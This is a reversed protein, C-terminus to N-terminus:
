IRHRTCLRCKAITVHLLTPVQINDEHSPTQANGTPAVATENGVRAGLGRLGGARAESLLRAEGAQVSKRGTRSKFPNEATSSCLKM